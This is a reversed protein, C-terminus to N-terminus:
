LAYIDTIDFECKEWNHFEVMHYYRTFIQLNSVRCDQRNGNRHHVDMGDVNGIFMEAVLRHLLFRYRRKHRYLYVRPYGNINLDTKLRQGWKNYVEGDSSIFYDEFGRVKIIHPKTM